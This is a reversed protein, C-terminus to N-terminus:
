IIKMTDVALWGVKGDPLRIKVWNGVNDLLEVKVGEHLVFLDTSQEDPASKVSVSASFIIAGQQHFMQQYEQRISVFSIVILIVSLAIALLSIKRFSLRSALLMGAFAAAMCWLSIIMLKSWGDVTFLHILANWWETFFLQPIPEIKDIVRLNALKLNYSIDEDHPALRKAREYNLIASPINELKFYANGLNYYLSPSEYGNKVIAEYMEASKQIEGSRYLQNAQEFQLSAEQAFAVASSLM